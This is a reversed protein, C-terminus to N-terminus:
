LKIIRLRNNPQIASHSTKNECTLNAVLAMLPSGKGSASRLVVTFPVTRKVCACGPDPLDRDLRPTRFARAVTDYQFICPSSLVGTHGTCCNLFGRRDLVARTSKIGNRPHTPLHFLHRFVCYWLVEVGLPSLTRHAQLVPSRFFIFEQVKCISRRSLLTQLLTQGSM